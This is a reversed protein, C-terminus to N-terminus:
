GLLCSPLMYYCGVRVWQQARYQLCNLCGGQAAFNCTLYGLECGLEHAYQLCSFRGYKAAIDCTNSALLCGHERAYQLCNLHGGEAAASCCGELTYGQECLYQLCELRGAKAAVNSVVSSSLHLQNRAGYHLHLAVLLSFYGRSVAYEMLRETVKEGRLYPLDKLFAFEDGERHEEALLNIAEPTMPAELLYVLLEMPIEVVEWYRLTALLLCIDSFVRLKSFDFHCYKAPFSLLEYPEQNSTSSEDNNEKEADLDDGSAASQTVAVNLEQFLCSRKFLDPLKSVDIAQM